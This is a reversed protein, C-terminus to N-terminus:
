VRFSRLETPREFPFKVGPAPPGFGGGSGGGRLRRNPHGHLEGHLKRSFWVLELLFYKTPLSALVGATAVFGIRGGLSTIGAQGLLWVALLAEMVEVLFETVLLGPTLSKAGPPHYILLGSPNTVLKAEYNKM